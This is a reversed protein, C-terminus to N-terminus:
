FSVSMAVEIDTRNYGDVCTSALTGPCAAVTTAQAKNTSGYGISLGVPGVATNYGLEMGTKALAEGAVSDATGIETSSSTSFVVTDSGLAYTLGIDTGVYAQGKTGANNLALYSGFVVWPKIDGFDMTVGLGLTSTATGTSDAADSPDHTGGHSTTASCQTVGVGITGFTGNFSVGTGTIGHYAGEGDFAVGGGCADGVAGSAQYAVSASMTDSIAYALSVGEYGGVRAGIADDDGSFGVTGSATSGSAVNQSSLHSADGLVITMTGDTLTIATSDAGTQQGCRATSASTTAGDHSTGNDSGTATATASCGFRDLNYSAGASATWDGVKRAGSISLTEDLGGDAWNVSYSLASSNPGDANSSSLTIAGGDSGIGSGGTLTNAQANKQTNTINFQATASGSASFDWAFAPAALAVSAVAALMIKSLQKM